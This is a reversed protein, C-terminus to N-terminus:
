FVILCNACCALSEKILSFGLFSSTKNTTLKRYNVLAFLVQHGSPLLDFTEISDCLYQFFFFLFVVAAAASGAM